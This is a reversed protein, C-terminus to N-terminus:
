QLWRLGVARRGASNGRTIFTYRASDESCARQSTTQNWQDVRAAEDGRGYIQGLVPRSKLEVATPGSNSYYRRSKACPGCIRRGRQHKSFLRIMQRIAASKPPREWGLKYKTTKMFISFNKLFVNGSEFDSADSM